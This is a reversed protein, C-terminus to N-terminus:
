HLHRFLAATFWQLFRSAAFLLLPPPRASRKVCAGLNFEETSPSHLSINQMCWGTLFVHHAFAVSAIYRPSFTPPAAQLTEIVV